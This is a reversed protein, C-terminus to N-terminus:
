RGDVFWLWAVRAGAFSRLVSDEIEVCVAPQDICEEVGTQSITHQRVKNWRIPVVHVCGDPWKSIGAGSGLLIKKHLYWVLLFRLVLCPAIDSVQRAYWVSETDELYSMEREIDYALADQILVSCHVHLVLDLRSHIQCLCWYSCPGWSPKLLVNSISVMSVLCSLFHLSIVSCENLWDWNTM